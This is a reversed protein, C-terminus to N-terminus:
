QIRFLYLGDWRGVVEIGWAEAHRLMDSGIGAFADDAVPIVVYRYGSRRVFAAADLRLDIDYLFREGSGDVGRWEGSGELVETRLRAQDGPWILFDAARLGAPAALMVSEGPRYMRWAYGSSVRVESLATLRIASGPSKRWRWSVLRAPTGHSVSAFELADTLRLGLRSHWYTLVERPIYAEPLASCAFIKSGAPVARAIADVIGFEPIKSRLYTREPVIRLAAPWPIDRLRWDYRFDYFCGAIQVAVLAVAAPAPLVSVIALTGVSMAPMLFRAGTNALFPVALVFGACCLVRGWRTRMALLGLPLLLFAPGFAGQNGGFVTYDLWAGHWSFSPRFAGYTMALRQRLEPTLVGALGVIRVLWPASFLLVLGAFVPRFRVVALAAVAVWGFTPKIAFCFAANLAACALLAFSREREWRILLYVVACCACVLGADTYASTGDVGCVPALFFIAAAACTKVDSLGAERGIERILGVSALLFAFHVLKAASGAGVAFAPVFVMEMGQPMFDFFGARDSFAHLRVYESVLRLHYGVADAQIEPALANVLYVVGAGAFVIRLYWPVATLAPTVSAGRLVAGAVLALGVLVYVALFGAHCLLILFVLLSFPAAGTAFRVSRPLPTGPAILHGAAM